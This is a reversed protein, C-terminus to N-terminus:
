RSSAPGRPGLISSPRAASITVRSLVCLRGETDAIEVEWVWTSRGRHRPRATAEIRGSTIPRMFSTQTSLGTAVRGDAEVAEATGAVALSEAVTAYVGGHVLGAPQKHRDRVEIRGRVLEDSVELLELGCLRDFGTLQDDAPPAMAPPRYVSPPAAAASALAVLARSGKPRM